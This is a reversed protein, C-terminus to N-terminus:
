KISFYQSVTNVFITFFSHQFLELNTSKLNFIFQIIILLLRLCNSCPYPTENYYILEIFFHNYICSAGGRIGVCMSLELLKM